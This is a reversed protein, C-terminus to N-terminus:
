PMAWIQPRPATVRRRESLAVVGDTLEATPTLAVFKAM